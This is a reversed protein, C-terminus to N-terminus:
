VDKNARRLKSIHELEYKKKKRKEAASEHHVAERADDIINEELVKDRFRSILRRTSEGKQKKVIVM